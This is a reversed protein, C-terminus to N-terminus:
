QKVGFSFGTEAEWQNRKLGITQAGPALMNFM